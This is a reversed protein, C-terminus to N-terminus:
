RGGPNISCVLCSRGEVVKRTIKGSQVMARGTGRSCRERAAGGPLERELEEGSSKVEATQGRRIADEQAQLVALMRQQAELEDKAWAQLKM